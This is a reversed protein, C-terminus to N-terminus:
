FKIVQFGTNHERCGMFYRNGEIAYVKFPKHCIPCTKVIGSIELKLKQAIRSVGLEPFMLYTLRAMITAVEISPSCHRWIKELVLIRASVLLFVGM